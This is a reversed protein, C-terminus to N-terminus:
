SCERPFAAFKVVIRSSQKGGFKQAWCSIETQYVDDDDCEITLFVPGGDSNEYNNGEDSGFEPAGGLNKDIEIVDLRLLVSKRVGEKVRITGVKTNINVWGWEPSITLFTGLGPCTGSQENAYGTVILEAKDDARDNNIVRVKTMYIDFVCFKATKEAEQLLFTKISSEREATPGNGNSCGCTSVNVINGENETPCNAAANGTTM